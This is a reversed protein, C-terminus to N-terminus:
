YLIDYLQEAVALTCLYRFSMPPRGIRRRMFQRRKERRLCVIPEITSLKVMAALLNSGRQVLSALSHNDGYYVDESYRGFAVGTGPQLGNNVSDLGRFSDVVAKRNASTTPSCPQFTSGDCGAKPDLIHISALISNVDKCDINSDIYSGEWFYQQFCANRGRVCQM